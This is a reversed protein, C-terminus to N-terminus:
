RDIVEGSESVVKPEGNRLAIQYNFRAVGQAQSQRPLSRVTWDYIGSVMCSGNGCTSVISDDRVQYSREPWRDFYRRKDELVDQLSTPEGYYSVSEAYLEAVAGLAGSGDQEILIIVLERASDEPSPSRATVPSEQEPMQPTAVDDSTTVNLNRMESASLYRIDASDYSLALKLLGHSVGMEDLYDLVDATAMQVGAVADDRTIDQGATFSSRHVGISGPEAFRVEGGLFALSCASTCEMDRLQLTALGLYRIARGIQIAGYINGGNSDFAVVSTEDDLAAAFRDLSEDPGFDGAVVLVENGADTEIPYYSLEARALGLGAFTLCLLLSLRALVGLEIM